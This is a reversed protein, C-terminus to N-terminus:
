EEVGGQHLSEALKTIRLWSSDIGSKLGDLTPLSELPRHQNLSVYVTSSDPDNFRPEIRYNWQAEEDSFGFHALGRDIVGDQVLRVAPSFLRDALYPGAMTGSPLGWEAEINYGAAGNFPSPADVISGIAVDVLEALRELGDPAPFECYISSRVPSVEFNVRERNLRYERVQHQEGTETDVNLAVGSFQTRVGARECFSEVEVPSALLGIQTLVVGARVIQVEETM